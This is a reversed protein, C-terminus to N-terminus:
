LPRDYRINSIFRKEIYGTINYKIKYWGDFFPEQDISDIDLITVTANSVTGLIESAVSHDAYIPINQEIVDGHIECGPFWGRKGTELDLVFWPSHKQKSLNYVEVAEVANRSYNLGTDPNKVIEQREPNEVGVYIRDIDLGVYEKNNIRIQNDQIPHIIIKKAM